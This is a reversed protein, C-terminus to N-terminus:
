LGRRMHPPLTLQHWLTRLTSNLSVEGHLMSAVLTTPPYIFTLLVEYSIKPMISFAKPFVSPM